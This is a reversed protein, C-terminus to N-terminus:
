ISHSRWSCAGATLSAISFGLLLSSFPQHLSVLQSIGRIKRELATVSNINGELSVRHHALVNDIERLESERIFGKSYLLSNFEGLRRVIQLAVDVQSKVPALNDELYQPKLLNLPSSQNVSQLDSDNLTLSM